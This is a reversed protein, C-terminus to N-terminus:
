DDGRRRSELYWMCEIPNMGSRNAIGHNKVHKACTKGRSLIMCMQSESISLVYLASRREIAGNKQRKTKTLQTHTHTHTNSNRTHAEMCQCVGDVSPDPPGVSIMRIPTAIRLLMRSTKSENLKSCHMRRKESPVDKGREKVKRAHRRECM